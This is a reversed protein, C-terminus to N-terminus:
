KVEKNKFDNVIKKAESLTCREKKAMKLATAVIAYSAGLAKHNKALYAAEYVSETQKPAQAPAAQNKPQAADAPPQAAPPAAATTTTQKEDM